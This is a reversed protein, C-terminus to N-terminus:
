RSGRLAGLPDGVGSDGWVRIFVEEGLFGAILDDPMARIWSDAAFQTAHCLLARRKKDLVASVDRRVSLFRSVFGSAPEELEDQLEDADDGRM